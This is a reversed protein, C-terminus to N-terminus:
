ATNLWEWTEAYFANVPDGVDPHSLLHAVDVRYVFSPSVGLRAASAPTCVDHGEPGFGAGYM